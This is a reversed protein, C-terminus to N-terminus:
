QISVPFKVPHWFHCIYRVTKVFLVIIVAVPVTHRYGAVPLEVTVTDGDIYTGSKTKRGAGRMYVPLIRRHSGVTLAERNRFRPVSPPHNKMELSAGIEDIYIYVSLLYADVLIGPARSLKIDGGIDTRSLVQQGTLYM